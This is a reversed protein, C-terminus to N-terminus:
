LMKINLFFCNQNLDLKPIKHSKTNKFKNFDFPSGKSLVEFVNKGSLNILIWQDSVDTVSGLNLKSIKTWITM